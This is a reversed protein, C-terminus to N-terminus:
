FQVTVTVTDSYDGPLASGTRLRAYVPLEVRGDIPAVATLANGVDSGWRRTRAPDTFLDYAVFRSGSIDTMRRAQGEANQGNDMTVLYSAAPTCSLALSAEADRTAPTDPVTGFVIPRVDVHCTQEVTVGVTMVASSTGALLPAHSLAIPVAGVWAVANPLRVKVM